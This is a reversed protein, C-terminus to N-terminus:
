QRAPVRGQTTGARKGAFDSTMRRAIDSFAPLAVRGASYDPYPKGFGIVLVWKPTAVPFFGAASVNYDTDSYVGKVPIRTESIMGAVDVGGFDVSFESAAVDMADKMMSSITKATPESVIQVAPEKSEYAVIVGNTSVIKEILHPAVMKGGNALAAYAGAVQLATVALGRGLGLRTLTVTDYRNSAWVIGAEEGYVTGCGV